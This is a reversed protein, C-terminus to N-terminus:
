SHGGLWLTVLILLYVPTLINRTVNFSRFDGVGQDIALLYSTLLFMPVQLLSVRSLWLLDPNNAPVLLPMAFWGVLVGAASLLIGFRLAQWEYVGKNARDRAARLSLANNLGLLAVMGIIGPWVQAGAFQGRGEPGLLRATLAGTM